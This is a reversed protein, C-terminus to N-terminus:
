TRVQTDGTSEDVQVKVIGPIWLNFSDEKGSNLSPLLPRSAAALQLLLLAFAAATM